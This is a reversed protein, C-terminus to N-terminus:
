FRIFYIWALMLTIVIIAFGYIRMILKQRKTTLGIESIPRFYGISMGAKLPFIITFLGLLLGLLFLLPWYVAALLFALSVLAFWVITTKLM